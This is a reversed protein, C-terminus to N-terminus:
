GYCALLGAAVLMSWFIGAESASLLWIAGPAYGPSTKCPVSGVFTQGKKNGAKNNPSQQKSLKGVGAAPSGSYRIVQIGSCQSTFTQPINQRSGPGTRGALGPFPFLQQLRQLRVPAPQTVGRQEALPATVQSVRPFSHPLDIRGLFSDISVGAPVELGSPVLRRHGKNNGALLHVPVPIHYHGLPPPQRGVAPVRHEQPRMVVGSRDDSSRHRDPALRLPQQGPHLEGRGVKGALHGGEVPAAVLLSYRHAELRQTVLLPPLFLGASEQADAEQFLFQQLDAGHRHRGVAM